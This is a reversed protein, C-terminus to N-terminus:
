WTTIQKRVRALSGDIADTLASFLFLPVGINYNTQWLFYLIFPISVLRLATIHNPRVTQPVLPELFAAFVRDHPLLKINENWQDM